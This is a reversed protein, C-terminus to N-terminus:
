CEVELIRGADELTQHERICTVVDQLARREPVHYLVDNVAILPVFATDAVDKLKELRRRDDGRYLLSGGLWVSQRSSAEKLRGLLNVLPKANIRSPPLVIFNM